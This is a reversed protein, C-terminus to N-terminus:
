TPATSTAARWGTAASTCSGRCASRSPSGTATSSTSRRTRSRGGSRSRSAGRAGGRPPHVLHDDGDPRLPEDPAHGAGFCNGRWARPSRRAAASSTCARTARGARSSSCGGRRRRPRCSPRAPPRRHARRPAQRAEGGGAARHRCPRRRAAAPVIRPRRHRLLPLHRGAGCRARHRRAPRADLLPPQRARPPPDDRGETQGHLRLHLHRVRSEGAHGDARAPRDPQRAIAERDRDLCIVDADGAPLEALSASSPSCSACRRTRSCSPSATAPTPPTSPSM